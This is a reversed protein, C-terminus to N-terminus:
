AQREKGGKGRAAREPPLLPNDVISRLIAASLLGALLAGAVATGVAAALNNTTPLQGTSIFSFGNANGSRAAM